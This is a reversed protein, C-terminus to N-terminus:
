SYSPIYELVRKGLEEDITTKDESSEFRHLIKGFSEEEEKQEEIFWELFASLESNSEKKALNSLLNIRETIFKEHELGM